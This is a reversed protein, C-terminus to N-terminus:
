FYYLVYLESLLDKYEPFKALNKRINEFTNGIFRLYGPNKRQNYFMSFSGVAKFNRQVCMLDYMKFFHRKDLNLGKKASVKEFYYNVYTYMEESDLQFYSDRLLSALDYQRLGMRADQFDICVYESNRLCMINRAHYDRHTFVREEAALRSCIDSFSENLIEKTKASLDRNLFMKFLNEITFNVEWMLKEHDFALDFGPIAAEDHPNVNSHFDILLDIASKYLKTRFELGYKHGLEHLLTINGLDELLIAGAAGNVEYVEPVRVQNKQLLKQVLLFDYSIESFPDTKMLVYTGQKSQVRFYKRLSADGALLEINIEDYFNDENICKIATNLIEATSM